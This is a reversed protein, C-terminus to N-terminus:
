RNFLAEPYSVVDRQPPPDGYSESVGVVGLVSRTLHGLLEVFYRYIANEPERHNVQLILPIRRDWMFTANYPSGNEVSYWATGANLVCLMTVMHDRSLRANIAGFRKALECFDVGPRLRTALVTTHLPNLINDDQDLSPLHQNETIHGYPNIARDWRSALTLKRMADDLVKFDITQTIESVAYVSEIPLYIRRSESTAKPKIAPSWIGDRIVLDQEGASAGHRDSLM